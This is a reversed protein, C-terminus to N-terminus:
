RRLTRAKRDKEIRDKYTYHTPRKRRKSFIPVVSRCERVRLCANHIMACAQVDAYFRLIDNMAIMQTEIMRVIYIHIALTRISNATIEVFGM